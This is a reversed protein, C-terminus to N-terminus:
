KGVVKPTILWLLEGAGAKPPGDFRICLAGGKKIRIEAGDEDGCLLYSALEHLQPRHGVLAVANSDATTELAIVAKEPPVDPEMAPFSEPAPWGAAEHLIEATRWAREFPSSFLRPIDPAIRGIEEAVGRFREEGEPTLTRLSDDPWRDYDRDHAVAHRVLYLKM